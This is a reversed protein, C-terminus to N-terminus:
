ANPVARASLHIRRTRLQDSDRQYDVAIGMTRLAPALRKFSHGGWWLLLGLVILTM